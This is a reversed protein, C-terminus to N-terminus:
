ALYALIGRAREEWRRMRTAHRTLSPPAGPTKNADLLVARGDLEVYDFKGYDFGLRERMAVIEPHAEADESRLSTDARIVPERGWVRACTHRDGLFHYIRMAYLDGEREAVFREVIWRPDEFVRRPVRSLSPYVRYAVRPERWVLRALWSRPRPPAEGRHREPAGARNLDSKVIV